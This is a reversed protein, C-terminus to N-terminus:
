LREVTQVLGLVDRHSGGRRQLSGPHSDNQGGPILIKLCSSPLKPWFRNKSVLFLVKCAAKGGKAGHGGAEQM